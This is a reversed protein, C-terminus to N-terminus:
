EWCSHFIHDNDSRAAGTEGGSNIGGPGVEGGENQFAALGTALLWWTQALTLPHVPAEPKRAM